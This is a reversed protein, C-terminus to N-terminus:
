AGSVRRSWACRRTQPRESYSNATLGSQPAMGFSDATAGNSLQPALRWLPVHASEAPIKDPPNGFRSLIV